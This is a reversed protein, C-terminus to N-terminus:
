PDQEVEEPDVGCCAQGAAIWEEETIERAEVTPNEPRDDAPPATHMASMM